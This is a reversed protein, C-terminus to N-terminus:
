RNGNYGLLPQESINRSVALIKTVVAHAYFESDRAIYEAISELNEAAEPSWSVTYDV